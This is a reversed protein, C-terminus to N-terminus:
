AHLSTMPTKMPTEYKGIRDIPFLHIGGALVTHQGDRDRFLFFGLGAPNLNRALGGCEHRSGLDRWSNLMRRSLQRLRHRCLSISDYRVLFSPTLHRRLRDNSEWSLSRASSFGRPPAPPSCCDNQDAGFATRSHGLEAYLHTGFYLDETRGIQNQDGIKRFDDHILEVAVFPYSLARDVPLVAAPTNTEPTQSFVNKDYRVGAYVRRTWGDILGPSLGGSV